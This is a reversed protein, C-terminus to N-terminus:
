ANGFVKKFDVKQKKAWKEFNKNTQIPDSKGPKTKYKHGPKEKPYWPAGPALVTKM